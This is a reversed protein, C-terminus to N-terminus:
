KKGAFHYGRRRLEIIKNAQVRIWTRCIAFLGLWISWLVILSQDNYLKNWFGNKIEIGETRYKKIYGKHGKSSYTIKIGKDKDVQIFGSSKMDLRNITFVDGMNLKYPGVKYYAQSVLAKDLISVEGSYLIPVVDSSEKINGGIKIDGEIQLIYSDNENVNIRISACDDLIIEKGAITKFFGSVDSVENDLDIIFEGKQIRLLEIYTDSAPYLFGSIKEKNESCDPYLDINSFKWVPYQQKRDPHKKSIYPSIMVKEVNASVIFVAPKSSFYIISSLFILVSSVWFLLVAIKIRSKVNSVEGDDGRAESEFISLLSDPVEDFVVFPSLFLRWANNKKM